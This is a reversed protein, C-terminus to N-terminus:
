FRKRGCDLFLIYSKVRPFDKLDAFIQFFAQKDLGKGKNKRGAM